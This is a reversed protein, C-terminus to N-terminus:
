SLIIKVVTRIDEEKLGAGSPLCLGTNFLKESVGNGYFPMMIYVPQLHMPKWLPRSEINESELQQRIQEPTKGFINSDITICTLWFNSNYDGNPNEHVKIGKVNEFLSSYLKHNNRRVTLFGELGSLQGRGIGASVNSMRYNYGVESHQYYPALDRAQTAYFLTKDATEKDNCILVGGGSTTIIKNGNFSIIGIKGFTGCKKEKFTSGLSEAADEILPIGYKESIEILEDLKAPMGYLNVSVIAKPFRGTIIKRSLIVEDLLKPDINWTDYESDVFVPKANLYMIANASAAFTFSQCIVEDDVSVGLQLLALHLAATGTNLAVIFGSENSNNFLYNQLSKEFEIVNPGLPAIWNTKFAENVYDLERGTMEALSLWIKKRDM